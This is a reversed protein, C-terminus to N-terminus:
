SHEETSGYMVPCLQHALGTWERMDCGFGWRKKENLSHMILNNGKFVDLTEGLRELRSSDLLGQEGQLGTVVQPCMPILNASQRKCEKLLM